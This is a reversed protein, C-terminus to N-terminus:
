SAAVGVAFGAAQDLAQIALAVHEVVPRAM